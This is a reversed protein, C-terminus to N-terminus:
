PFRPAHQLLYSTRDTMPARVDMQMLDLRARGEDYGPPPTQAYEPSPRPLPMFPQPLDQRLLGLWLVAGAAVAGMWPLYSLARRQRAASAAARMIRADALATPAERAHRRYLAIDEDLQFEDIRDNM